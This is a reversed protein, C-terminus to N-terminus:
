NPIEWPLVSRIGGPCYPDHIHPEPIYKQLIKNFHGESNVTAGDYRKICEWPSPNRLNTQPGYTAYHTIKGNTLDRRFVTHAGVANADPVFRNRGAKKAVETVGGKAVQAAESALTKEAVQATKQAAQKAAQKTVEKTVAKTVEKTAAQGLCSVVVGKATNCITSFGKKTLAAPNMSIVAGLALGTGKSITHAMDLGKFVDLSFAAGTYGGGAGLVFDAAITSGTYTGVLAAATPLCYDIAMSAVLPIAFALFALQGDPDIYTLPQNHVYAYLNLGDAFGAPDPTIWRGIEHSYYRRGFYVFGTESLGNAPM